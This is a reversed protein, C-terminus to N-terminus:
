SLTLFDGDFSSGERAQGGDAGGEKVDSVQHNRQAASVRRHHGGMDQLRGRM